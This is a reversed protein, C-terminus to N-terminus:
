CFPKRHPWIDGLAPQNNEKLYLQLRLMRDRHYVTNCSHCMKIRFKNKAPSTGIKLVRGACLCRPRIIPTYFEDVRCLVINRRAAAHKLHPLLQTEMSSAFDLIKTEIGDVGVALLVTRSLPPSLEALNNAAKSWTEKWAVRTAFFIDLETKYATELLRRSSHAGRIYIMCDDQHRM